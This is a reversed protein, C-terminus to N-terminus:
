KVPTADDPRMLTMTCGKDPACALLGRRLIKAPADDPFMRGFSTARIRDTLWPSEDGRIFRITEVSGPPSFLVLAEATMSTASTAQIKFTRLDVLEQGVSAVVGDVKSEDGLLAALRTRIDSSPRPASLALGYMRIAEDRRGQKEYVQALHDGVEARQGLKWAMEIYPTAKALDNRAVHVWGLTDWYTGLSRILTLSAADGRSLDLSRSAATVSSVALEAYQQARDLEIGHQSLAYAINNWISPNPSRTVARDFAAMAKDVQKLGLYAKGSQVQLTADDPNRAIGKEFQEAAREYSRRELYLSGLNAPTFKDLPNVELQKLFAAEAKDYDRNVVYARGLNNYAYQDSPNVAIQKEFASIAADIQRLSLYARGLNNWAVKDRPELEVARKLLTVAETFNGGQLAEYGRRDLQAVTLAPTAPSTIPASTDPPRENFYFTVTFFARDAPYASPLPAVPNSASIAARATKNFADVASPTAIAVDTIAGNKQVNFTVVVHGKAVRAEEPIFWRRKVEATFSRIWPGFEIGRTDFTIEPGFQGPSSAASAATGPAARTPDTGDGRATLPQPELSIRELIRAFTPGIARAEREADVHPASRLHLVHFTLIVQRDGVTTVFAWVRSTDVLTRAVGALFSEAPGAEPVSIEGFDLWLWLRGAAMLQGSASVPKAQAVATVIAQLELASLPTALKMPAPQSPAIAMGAAGQSQLVLQVNPAGEIKLWGAPYRVRIRTAPEILVAEAWERDDIPLRGADGSPPTFSEPVTLPGPTGADPGISFTLEITILVPVPTGDRTGPRFRWQKLAKVAEQDLGADLSKAVRVRQVTGDTEVVCELRTIGQVGTRLADVTYAPRVEHLVRPLVIGSGPPFADAPPWVQRNASTGSQGAVWGRSEAPTMSSSFVLWIVLPLSCRLHSM